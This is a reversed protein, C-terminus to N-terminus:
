DKLFDLSVTRSCAMGQLWLTPLSGSFYFTQRCLPQLVPSVVSFEFMLFIKIRWMEYHKRNEWSWNLLPKVSHLNFVWLLYKKFLSLGELKTATAYTYMKYIFVCSINASFNCKIIQCSWTKVSNFILAKDVIFHVEMQVSCSGVIDYSLHVSLCKPSLYYISIIGIVISLNSYCM